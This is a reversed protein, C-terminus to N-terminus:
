TQPDVMFVPRHPDTPTQPPRPPTAVQQGAEQGSGSGDLDLPFAGPGRSAPPAAHLGRGDPGGGASPCLVDLAQVCRWSGSRVTLVGFAGGPGRFCRWSGLRVTLVGFAGGPGRVCRWSGSHVALVGSRVTPVGFAGDPGWVCWWSGSRV